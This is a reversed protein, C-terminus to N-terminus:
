ATQPVQLLSISAEQINEFEEKLKAVVGVFYMCHIPPKLLLCFNCVQHGNSHLRFPSISDYLRDQDPDGETSNKCSENSNM